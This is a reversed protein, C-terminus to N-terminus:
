ELKQYYYLTHEPLLKPHLIYTLDALIRHPNVVGSEFYDNGQGDPTMRRNNNYVQGTNFSKFDGFRADKDLLAQLSSVMGPNFWYDAELGYAYMNEFAVPISVAVTDQAWPWFAGAEQYLKARYSSGGPVYWAGQFPSGSIVSPRKELNATLRAIRHYAAAITDFKQNALAERNTLAAMLKVWEAKGLPTNEMWETNILVPIGSNVIAQYKQLDTGPMGSVMLLGPQLAIVLEQNLGGGEGVATVSGQAVRERVEPDYVYQSNDLGIILSDAEVFDALAVHTTSLAVLSKVPIKITTADPLTDPRGMGEPLLLYDTTDFGQYLHLVKFNDEYSIDFGRAYRPQAEATWPQAPLTANADQLQDKEPMCAVVGFM